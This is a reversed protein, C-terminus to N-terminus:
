EGLRDRLVAVGPGDLDALATARGSIAMALAESVGHVDDGRGWSWDQDTAVLRLRDLRGKPLFGRTAPKSVLFELAPRWADPSPNVDLRLPRAADRLHICTDAMPGLIGTVPVDMRTAALRRLDAVIQDTPRRSRERTQEDVYRALDGRYRVVVGLVHPWSYRTELPALLHAAVERVTWGACLSPMGWQAPTLREFM